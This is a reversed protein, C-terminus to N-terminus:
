TAVKPSKKTAYVAAASSRWQNGGDGTPRPSRGRSIVTNKDTCDCREGPDLACGCNPCTRYYAM